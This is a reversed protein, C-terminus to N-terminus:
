DSAADEPVVGSDEARASGVFPTLELKNTQATAPLASGTLAVLAGTLAVWRNRM